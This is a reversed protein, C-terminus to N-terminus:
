GEIENVLNPLKDNYFSVGFWAWNDGYYTLKPSWSNTNPDYLSEFKQDYVDDAKSPDLVSFYALLNSYSEISEDDRVVQGDHSYIASLRGSEDWEEKLFSMKKLTEKARDDGNWRWDLALRWLTRIADYGYNTDLNATTPASLAGTQRDMVVWNPVLKASSAKDLPHEMSKNILDYSSNVVAMWDNEKDVKAFERYAHPSLYSPNFVIPSSSQKEMNNSAFYPVGNVTVVENAWMSKILERAEDVYTQHQWRGAALLLALAIDSDADSASNEGGVDALVGYSSDARQGWKWSFLKDPRTLQEKTWAWTKDFVEKDSAWVARLMTYSQGESTTIDNQQKDLTRGTEEEWYEQKYSNWLGDTVAQSGFVLKEDAKDSSQYLAYATTGAAGVLLVVAVMRIILRKM